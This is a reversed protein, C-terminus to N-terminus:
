KYIWIPTGEWPVLNLFYQFFLRMKGRIFWIKYYHGQHSAPPWRDARLNGTAAYHSRPPLTATGIQVSLMGQWWWTPRAVVQWGACWGVEFRKGPNVIISLPLNSFSLVLPTSKPDPFICSNPHLTLWLSSSTAFRVSVRFDRFRVPYNDKIYVLHVRSILHICGNERVSNVFSSLGGKVMSILYEITIWGNWECMQFELLVNVVSDRLEVGPKMVISRPKSKRRRWRNGWVSGM